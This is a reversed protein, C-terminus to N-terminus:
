PEAAEDGLHEAGECGGGCQEGIVLGGDRQGSVVLVMRARLVDIHTVMPDSPDDLLARDSEHVAGRVVHYGVDEGLSQRRGLHLM